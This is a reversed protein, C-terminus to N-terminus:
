EIPQEVGPALQGGEAVPQIQPLRNDQGLEIADM